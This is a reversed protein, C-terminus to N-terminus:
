EDIEQDVVYESIPQQSTLLHTMATLLFM